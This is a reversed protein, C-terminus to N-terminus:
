ITARSWASASWGERKHVKLDRLPHKRKKANLIYKAFLKQNYM